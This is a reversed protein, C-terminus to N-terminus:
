NSKFEKKNEFKMLTYKEEENIEIDFEIPKDSGLFQGLSQKMQEEGQLMGGIMQNEQIDDALVQIKISLDDDNKELKVSNSLQEKIEDWNFGDMM